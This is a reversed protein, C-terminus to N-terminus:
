QLKARLTIRKLAQKINESNKKAFPVELKTDKCNNQAKPYQHGLVRLAFEVKPNTREMSDIFSVLINGALEFKVQQQFKQKM